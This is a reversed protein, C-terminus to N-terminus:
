GVCCLHTTFERTPTPALASDHVPHKLRSPCVVPAVRSVVWVRQILVAYARIINLDTITTRSLRVINLHRKRSKVLQHVTNLTLGRGYTDGKGPSTVYRFSRRLTAKRLTKLEPPNPGKVQSPNRSQRIADFPKEGLLMVNKKRRCPCQDGNRPTPGIEYSFALIM